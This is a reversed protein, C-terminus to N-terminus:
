DSCFHWQINKCGLILPEAQKVISNMDTGLIFIAKLAELPDGPIWFGYEVEYDKGIQPANQKLRSLWCLNGADDYLATPYTKKYEEIKDSPTDPFIQRYTKKMFLHNYLLMLKYTEDDFGNGYEMAKEITSLYMPSDSPEVDTGTQLVTSLRKFDVCRALHWYRDKFLTEVLSGLYGIFERNLGRYDGQVAIIPRPANALYAAQFPHKETKKPEVTVGKIM